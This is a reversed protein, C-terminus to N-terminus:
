EMIEIESVFIWKNELNSKSISPNFSILEANDDHENDFFHTIKNILCKSKIHPAFFSTPCKCKENMIVSSEAVNKQCNTAFHQTSGCIYCKDTNGKIIQKLVQKNIDSLRIQYFSGGRVNNIGYKEMYKITYKDEDYDHCSPIIELVIVPKYKKTWESGYSDIHSDIRFGPGDTKGVYFKSKQLGLVFVFPM